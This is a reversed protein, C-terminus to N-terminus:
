FSGQRAGDQKYPLRYGWPDEALGRGWVQVDRRAQVRYASTEEGKSVLSSAKRHRKRQLFMM